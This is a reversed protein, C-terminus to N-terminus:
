ACSSMQMGLVNSYMSDLALASGQEALGPMSFWNIQSINAGWDMFKSGYIGIIELGREIGGTNIFNPNEITICKHFIPHRFMKFTINKTHCPFGQFLCRMTIEWNPILGSELDSENLMTFLTSKKLLTRFVTTRSGKQTLRGFKKYLKSFPRMANKVSEEFQPIAMSVNKLSIADFFEETVAFRCSVWTM